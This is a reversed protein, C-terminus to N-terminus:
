IPSAKSTSCLLPAHANVEEVFAKLYPLSDYDELTPMRGAGVVRDMEQQAKQQLEPYTILALVINQIFSAATEAGADM